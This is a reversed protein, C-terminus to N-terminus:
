LLWNSGKKQASGGVGHDLREMNERHVEDMEDWQQRFEPDKVVTNDWQSVKLGVRVLDAVTGKNIRRWSSWQKWM